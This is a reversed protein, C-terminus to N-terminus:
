QEVLWHADLDRGCECLSSSLPHAPTSPREGGAISQNSALRHFCISACCGKTSADSFIRLHAVIGQPGKHPSASNSCFPQVVWRSFSCSTSSAGMEGLSVSAWGISNLYSNTRRKLYGSCNNDGAKDDRIGDGAARQAQAALFHSTGRASRSTDRASLGCLLCSGHTLRQLMRIPEHLHNGELKSLTHEKEKTIKEAEIKSQFDALSVAFAPDFPLPPFLM